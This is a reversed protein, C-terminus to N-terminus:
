HEEVTKKIECATSRMPGTPVGTRGPRQGTLPTVM